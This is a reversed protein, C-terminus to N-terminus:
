DNNKFDSLSEERDSAFIIERELSVNKKKQVTEEVIQVLKKIDASTAGGKNIIFNAHHFAVQAGGVSLGKLECEDIIKGAIIGEEPRNKFVSGASPFSFHGKAARERAFFKRRARLEDASSKLCPLNFCEFVASIIIKQPFALTGRSKAFSTNEGIKENEVSRENKKIAPNQFPSKKYGWDSAKYFYERIENAQTDFYKVSVLNKDASKGFCSANMFLAGGVTGPLGSFEEFGRLVNKECFGIVNGWSAGCQAYIFFRKETETGVASEKNSEPNGENKRNESAIKLTAKNELNEHDPIDTRKTRQIEFDGIKERNNKKDDSEIKYFGIKNLKRTSLAVNFGSDSIILNSGGGILLFNQNLACLSSCAFIFSKEDLPEIFLAAKGGVKMTTHAALNEDNKVIGNFAPNNNFLEKIKRLIM